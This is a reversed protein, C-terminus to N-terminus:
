TDCTLLLVVADTSELSHWSAFALLANRMSAYLESPCSRGQLPQGSCSCTGINACLIPDEKM